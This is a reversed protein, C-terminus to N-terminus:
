IHFFFVGLLFDVVLYIFSYIFLHESFYPLQKLPLEIKRGGVLKLTLKM